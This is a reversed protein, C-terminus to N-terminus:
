AWVTVEQELTVKSPAVVQIVTGDPRIAEIDYVAKAWTIAATKEASFTLTFESNAADITITGDPTTIPSDPTVSSASLLLTGSVTDRFMARIKWGTLDEPRPYILVAPGALPKAASLNMDNFEITNADVKSATKWEGAATLLELPTTASEIRVPWENPLGHATVTLRAPAKTAIAQITKYVLDEAAFKLSLTFTKGQLVKLELTPAAM